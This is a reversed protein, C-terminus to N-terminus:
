SYNGGVEALICNEAEKRKTARDDRTAACFGKVMSGRGVLMVAPVGYLMVHAGEVPVTSVTDSMRRWPSELLRFVTRVMAQVHGPVEIFIM